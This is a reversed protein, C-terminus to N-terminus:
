WNTVPWKKAVSGRSKEDEMIRKRATSSQTWGMGSSYIFGKKKVRQGKQIHTQLLIISFKEFHGLCAQTGNRSGDGRVKHIGTQSCRQLFLPGQICLAVKVGFGDISGLSYGSTYLVSEFLVKFVSKTKALIERGSFSSYIVLLYASCEWSLHDESFTPGDKNNWLKRKM